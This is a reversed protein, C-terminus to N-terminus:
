FPADEEVRKEGKEKKGGSALLAAASTVAVKKESREAKEAKEERAAPRAKENGGESGKAVVGRKFPSRGTARPDLAEDYIAFESNTAEGGKKTEVTRARCFLLNDRLPNKESVAALAVAKTVESPARGWAAAIFGKIRGLSGDWDKMQFYNCTDGVEHADEGEAWLVDLDAAFFELKKRTASAKCSRVRFLYDGPAMYQRLGYVEEDEIGDFFDESM